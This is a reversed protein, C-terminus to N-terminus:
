HIQKLPMNFLIVQLIRDLPKILGSMDAPGGPRISNIFVGNEYKGDSLSFGFDEYVQDKFLTVKHIEIPLSSSYASSPVCYGERPENCISHRLAYDNSKAENNSFCRHINDRQKLNINLQEIQSNLEQLNNESLTGSPSAERTHSNRESDSKPENANEDVGLISQEIQRLLESQGCTQLDELVKHWSEKEDDSPVYLSGSFSNSRMTKMEWSIQDGYSDQNLQKSAESHYLASINGDSASHGTFCIIINKLLFNLYLFLSFTVYMCVFSFFM